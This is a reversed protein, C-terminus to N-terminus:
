IIMYKLTMLCMEQLKLNEMTARKKTFRVQTETSASIVTGQFIWKSNGFYGYSLTYFPCSEIILSTSMHAQDGRNYLM